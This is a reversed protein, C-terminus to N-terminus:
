LRIRCPLLSGVGKKKRNQFNNFCKGLYFPNRKENRSLIIKRIFGGGRGTEEHKRNKKVNM